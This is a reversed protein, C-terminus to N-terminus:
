EYLLYAARRRKFEGLSGSWGAVIEARSRGARIAEMVSDDRLLQKIKDLAYEEPYLRQLRVAIEIGVDVANVANRDTVVIAVGKCLKNSFTSYTPTFQIPYFRVGALGSRNLAESLIMDDVYPAGVVEFPRDTGRGVSLAAEHLGVGPYLIAAELSRM